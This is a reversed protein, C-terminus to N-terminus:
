VERETAVDAFHMVITLDISSYEREVVDCRYRRLLLMKQVYRREIRGKSTAGFADNVYIVDLTGLAAAPRPLMSITGVSIGRKPGKEQPWMPM